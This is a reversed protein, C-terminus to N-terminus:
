TVLGTMPMVNAVLFSVVTISNSYYVLFELNFYLCAITVSFYM